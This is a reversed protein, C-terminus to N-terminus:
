WFRAVTANDFNRGRASSRKCPHPHARHMAPALPPPTRLVLEGLVSTAVLGAGYCATFHPSTCLELWLESGPAATTSTAQLSPAPANHAALGRIQRERADGLKGCLGVLWALQAVATRSVSWRASRPCAAAEWSVAGLWLFHGTYHTGTSAWGGNRETHAQTANEPAGHSRQRAHHSAQPLFPDRRSTAYPETSTAFPVHLPQQPQTPQTSPPYGAAAHAAPPQHNPNHILPRDPPRTLPPAPQRADM